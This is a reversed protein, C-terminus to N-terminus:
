SWWISSNTSQHLSAYLTISLVAHLPWATVWSSLFGHTTQSRTQQVPMCHILLSTLWEKEHLLCQIPGCLAEWRKQTRATLSKIDNVLDDTLRVPKLFVKTLLHIHTQTHVSSGESLYLLHAWSKHYSNEVWRCYLSIFWECTLYRNLIEHHHM